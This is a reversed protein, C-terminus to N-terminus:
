YTVVARLCDGGHLAEVADLTKEVGRMRHTIFSGIPLEGAIVRDVSSNAFDFCHTGCFDHTSEAGICGTVRSRDHVPDVFGCCGAIFVSLTLNHQHLTDAFLNLFNM